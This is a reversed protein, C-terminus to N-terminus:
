LTVVKRVEDISLSGDKNLDYQNFIARYKKLKATYIQFQDTVKERNSKLQDTPSQSISPESDKSDVIVTLNNMNSGSYSSTLSRNQWVRLKESERFFSLSPGSPM